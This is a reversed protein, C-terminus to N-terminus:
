ESELRAGEVVRGDRWSSEIVINQHGLFLIISSMSSINPTMRKEPRKEPVSAATKLTVGDSTSTITCYTTSCDTIFQVVHFNPQKVFADIFKYTREILM